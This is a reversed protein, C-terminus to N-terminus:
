GHSTEKMQIGIDEQAEKSSLRLVLEIRCRSEELSGRKFLIGEENDMGEHQGFCSKSELREVFNGSACDGTNKIFEDETGSNKHGVAFQDEIGEFPHLFSAHMKDISEQSGFAGPGPM